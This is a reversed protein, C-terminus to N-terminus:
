EQPYEVQTDLVEGTLRDLAVHVWVRTEGTVVFQSLLPRLGRPYRGSQVIVDLMLNWVRTQGADALARVAAQKYQAGGELNLTVNLLDKAFGDYFDAGVGATAGSTKPSWFGVLESVNRLPTTKTRNLFMQAIGDRETYSLPKFPEADVNWGTGSLMAKLVPLQRTNLDLRGSKLPELDELESICFVDLLGGFGSEPAAFDVHRWPAGAFAFAMEGVSRFPRNLLRPRAFDQDKPLWAGPSLAGFPRRYMGDADPVPDPLVRSADPIGTFWPVSEYGFFTGPSVSVSGWRETRPDPFISASYTGSSSIRSWDVSDPRLESGLLLTKEDYTVWNSAADRYKLKYTLLPQPSVKYVSPLIMFTGGMVTSSQRPVIGRFIRPLKAVAMASITSASVSNAADAVAGMAQASPDADSLWVPHEFLDPLGAPWNFYLVQPRGAPVSPPVRFDLETKALSSTLPVRLSYPGSYYQTELYPQVQFKVNSSLELAFNEPQSVANVLVGSANSVKSIVHPNWLAMTQWLLVTGAVVPAPTFAGVPTYPSPLPSLDPPIVTMHTQVGHLYPLAEIGRFEKDGTALPMVIRTPFSDADYQDIL